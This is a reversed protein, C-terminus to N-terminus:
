ARLSCRSSTSTELRSRTLHRGHKPLARHDLCDEAVSDPLDLEAALASLTPRDTAIVDIWRFDPEAAFVLPRVAGSDSLVRMPRSM